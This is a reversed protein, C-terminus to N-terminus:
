RFTAGEGDIGTRLGVLFAAVRAPESMVFCGENNNPDLVISLQDQEARFSM